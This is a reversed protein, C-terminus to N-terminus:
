SGMKNGLGFTCKIIFAQGLQKEMSHDNLIGTGDMGRSKGRLSRVIGGKFRPDIVVSRLFDVRRANVALHRREIM